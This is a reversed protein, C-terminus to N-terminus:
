PCGDTGRGGLRIPHALMKGNPPLRRLIRGRSVMGHDQRMHEQVRRVLEEETAAEVRDGMLHCIGRREM